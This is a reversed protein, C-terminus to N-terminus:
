RDGDDAEDRGDGDIRVRLLKRLTATFATLESEDLEGFLLREREHQAGYASRLKAVGAATATVSALRGDAQDRQRLALGDRELTTVVGSVAARSVGSLRAIDRVELSEFIWVTFLVRFGAMSLGRPRHVETDFDGITRTALRFLDFSAAFSGLDIDDVLEGVRETARAEFADPM